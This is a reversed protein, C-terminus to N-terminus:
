YHQSLGEIVHQNNLYKDPAQINLMKRADKLDMPLIDEYVVGMLWESKRGNKYAQWITSWINNGPMMKNFEYGGMLAIAAFGLSKTQAYSFAVVCAEGFGDRGYGTLVHWLDHVDRSRDFYLRLDKSKLNTHAVQSSEVLGDASLDESEIFALYARGLSNEPLGRLYDKDNLKDLIDLRETLVRKGGESKFFRQFQKAHSNGALSKMIVFVQETNEPDNILNRLARWAKSWERPEHQNVFDTVLTSM